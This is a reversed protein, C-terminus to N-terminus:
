HQMHSIDESKSEKAHMCQLGEKRSPRTSKKNSFRRVLAGLAPRMIRRQINDTAEAVSKDPTV